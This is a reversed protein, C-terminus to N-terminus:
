SGHDDGSSAEWFLMEFAAWRLHGVTIPESAVRCGGYHLGGQSHKMISPDGGAAALGAHAMKIRFAVQAATVLPTPLHITGGVPNLRSVLGGGM